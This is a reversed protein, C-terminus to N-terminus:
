GEEQPRELTAAVNAVDKGAVTAGALRVKRGNWRRQRCGFFVSWDGKRKRACLANASERSRQECGATLVESGAGRRRLAARDAESFSGEEQPREFIAAANAVDKGAVGARRGIPSETREGEAASM